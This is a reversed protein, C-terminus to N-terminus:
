WRIRTDLTQQEEQLQKLINQSNPVSDATSGGLQMLAIQAAKLREGYGDQKRYGPQNKIFDDAYSKLVQRISSFNGTTKGARVLESITIPSPRLTFAQIASECYLQKKDPRTQPILSCLTLHRSLENPFLATGNLIADILSKGKETNTDVLMQQYPDAYAIKWNGSRSLSQMFSSNIQTYPAAAVWVDYFALQETLWKGLDAYDSATFNRQANLVNQFVPGGAYIYQWLQFQDHNFAAQARGDMFLKLPIEGTTPDPRQGFAMAGGETWYNFVRGSLHNDNIFKCIDIPKVNSATMRMFISNYTGDEPWPDLYISKFKFGWFCGAILVCAAFSGYATKRWTAPFPVREIFLSKFASPAHRIKMSITQWAQQILLAIVPCVAPGAIAIFRRSKVAMYTTFIAIALMPLDIKPWNQYFREFDAPKTRKDVSMRPRLGHGVTWVALAALMLICMVGFAEEDGVPNPDKRDFELFDFAPRWENVSRWSEAHKSVSIEFTHTLNTLHYPNLVLMAVFSAISAYGILMLHRFPIKVLRNKSLMSILHLGCFPVLMMYIYIYGGHFNAWLVVAPVLLWIFHIHEYIALALILLALPVFFNSWCAPRIDFFSRGIVMAFCSAAAALLPVVGMTRGLGYVVFGTAWFLAFKWVVLMNYNPNDESGGLLTLKYFLLHTLWNQNIWGTPHIKKVIGHTWAPWGATKLQEDTPGPKHSNFSFPEKTDVGHNAFHRGCALAVWTDGAAVMHTASYFSFVTIGLGLILESLIKTWVLRPQTTQTTM